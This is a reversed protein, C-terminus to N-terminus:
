EIGAQAMTHAIEAESFPIGNIYLPVGALVEELMDSAMEDDSDKVADMVLLVMDDERHDIAEEMEDRTGVVVFASKNGQRMAFGWGAGDNPFLDDGVDGKFQVRVSDPDLIGSGAM